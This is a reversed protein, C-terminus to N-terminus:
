TEIRCTADCGDGGGLNQDDCQEGLTVEGDGCEGVSVGLRYPFTAPDAGAGATVRVFYDGPPLGTAIARACDGDGSDDDSALLANGNADTDFIDVVSDMLNLGCAGDGLNLTDVILTSSAATLTVQYVDADGPAGVQGFWPGFDFVDASAIDDNPETESIELQCDPDCGDGDNINGDDCPEEADRISDGCAPQRLALELLFEGADAGSAGDVIIFYSEGALADLTLRTNAGCVLESADLGCTTRVNVNLAADSSLFVDFKGDEPISVEYAVEAGTAAGGCSSTLATAHGLTTGNLSSNPDVALPALCTDGCVAGCDTADSCDVAGDGDNDRADNCNETGSCAATNWTCDSNCSLTGQDFGLQVCSRNPPEPGDCDEGEDLQQDGCAPGPSVGGDPLGSGGDTTPNSGQGADPGGPDLAGADIDKGTVDLPNDPLGGRRSDDGCGWAAVLSM